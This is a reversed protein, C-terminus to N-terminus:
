DSNDDILSYSQMYGRFVRGLSYIVIKIDLLLSWEKIYDIYSKSENKSNFVQALGTIGPKAFYRAGFISSTSSNVLHHNIKVPTPGVVSMDGKLVNIFQPLEDLSTKRLFAGVKTIRSDKRPGIYDADYSLRMTRFKYCYFAKNNRGIRLQKFFVPGKSEVKILFSLIIVLWPLVLIAVLLSFVVDFSRKYIWDKMPIIVPDTSINSFLDLLEDKIEQPPNGYLAQVVLNEAKRYEGCTIAISAASRFLVSRTPEAAIKDKLLMAAKTELELADRLSKKYSAMDPKLSASIEEAQQLSKMAGHHLQRATSM